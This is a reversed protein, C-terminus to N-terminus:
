QFRLAAPGAVALGDARERRDLPDLDAREALAHRGDDVLREVGLPGVDKEM